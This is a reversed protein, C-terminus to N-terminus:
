KPYGYWAGTHVDFTLRQQEISVQPPDEPPPYEPRKISEKPLEIRRGGGIITLHAKIGRSEIGDRIKVLYNITERSPTDTSIHFVTELNQIKMVVPIQGRDYTDWMFVIDSDKNEKDVYKPPEAEGFGLEAGIQRFQKLMFVRAIRDPKDQWIERTEGNQESYFKELEDLSKEEKFIYTFKNKIENRIDEPFKTIEEKSTLSEMENLTKKIEEIGYVKILKSIDECQAVKKEPSFGEPNIM